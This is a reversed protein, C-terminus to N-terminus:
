MEFTKDMIYNTKNSNYMDRAYQIFKNISTGYDKLDKSNLVKNITEDKLEDTYRKSSPSGQGDKNSFGLVKGSGSLRLIDLSHRGYMNNIIIDYRMGGFKVYIDGGLIEGDESIIVEGILTRYKNYTGNKSYIYADIAGINACTNDKSWFDRYKNYEKEDYHILPEDGYLTKVIDHKEENWIPHKNLLEERTLRM